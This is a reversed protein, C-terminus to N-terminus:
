KVEVKTCRYGGNKIRSTFQRDPFPVRLIKQFEEEPVGFYDYMTDRGRFRVRLVGDCWGAAELNKRSGRVRLLDFGREYQRTQKNAVYHRNKAEAAALLTFERGRELMLPVIAANFKALTDCAAIEARWTVDDIM